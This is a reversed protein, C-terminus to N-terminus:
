VPSSCGATDDSPDVMNAKLSYIVPHHHKPYLETSTLANDGPYQMDLIMKLNKLYLLM